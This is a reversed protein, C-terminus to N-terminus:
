GCRSFPLSVAFYLLRNSERVRFYHFELLM